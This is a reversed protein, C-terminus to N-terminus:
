PEGSKRDKARQRASEVTMVAETPLLRWRQQSLGGKKDKIGLGRNSLVSEASGM